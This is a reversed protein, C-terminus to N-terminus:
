AAVEQEGRQEHYFRVLADRDDSSVVERRKRERKEIEDVVEAESYHKGEGRIWDRLVDVLGRTAPADSRAIVKPPAGSKVGADVWAVVNHIQATSAAAELWARTLERDRRWRERQSTSLALEDLTNEFTSEEVDDDEHEEVDIPPETSPAENSDSAHKEGVESGGEAPRENSGLELKLPGTKARVLEFSWPSVGGPTPAQANIWGKGAMEHLEQRLREVSYPYRTQEKITRLTASCKGDRGCRHILWTLLGLQVFTLEHAELADFVRRPVMAFAESKGSM